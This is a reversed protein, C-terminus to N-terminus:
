QKCPRIESDMSVASLEISVSSVSAELRRGIGDSDLMLGVDGCRRRARLGDRGGVSDEPAENGNRGSSGGAGLSVESSRICISAHSWCHSFVCDVGSTSSYVALAVAGDGVRMARALGDGVAGATVDAPLHAELSAVSTRDVRRRMLACTSPGDTRSWGM